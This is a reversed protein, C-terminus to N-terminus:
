NQLKINDRHERCHPRMFIGVEEVNFAWVKRSCMCLSCMILNTTKIALRPLSTTNKFGCTACMITIALNYRMSSDNLVLNGAGFIM